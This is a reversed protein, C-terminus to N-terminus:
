KQEKFSLTIVEEVSILNGIAPPLAASINEITWGNKTVGNQELTDRVRKMATQYNYNPASTVVSQFAPTTQLAHLIQPRKGKLDLKTTSDVAILYPKVGIYAPIAMGNRAKVIERVYPDLFAVAKGFEGAQYSAIDRNRQMQVYRQLLEHPKMQEPDVPELATPQMDTVVVRYDPHEIPLEHGAMQGAPAAFPDHTTM